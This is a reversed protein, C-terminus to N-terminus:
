LNINEALISFDQYFVFLINPFEFITNVKAGHVGEDGGYCYSNNKVDYAIAQM